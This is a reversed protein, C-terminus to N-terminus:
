VLPPYHLPPTAPKATLPPHLTPLCTPALLSVHHGSASLVAGALELPM